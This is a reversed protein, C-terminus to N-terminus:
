QCTSPKTTTASLVGDNATIYTVGDGDSDGLVFCGPTSNGHRSPDGAGVRLTSKNSIDDVVHFSALPVETNIGFYGNARHLHLYSQLGGSMTLNFGPEGAAADYALTVSSEDSENMFHISGPAGALEGASLIFDNGNAIRLNAYDATSSDAGIVLGGQYGGFNNWKFDSNEAITGSSYFLVSGEEFTTKGLGGKSLPMVGAFSVQHQNNGSSVQILGDGVFSHSTGSQGNLNDVGAFAILAPLLVAGFVAAVFQAKPM